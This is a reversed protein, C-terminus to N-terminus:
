SKNQNAFKIKFIQWSMQGKQGCKCKFKNELQVMRVYPPHELLLRFPDLYGKRDCINCTVKIRHDPQMDELRINFAASILVRTEQIHDSLISGLLYINRNQEWLSNVNDILKHDVGSNMVM